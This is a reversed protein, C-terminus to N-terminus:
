LNNSPLEIKGDRVAKLFQLTMRATAGWLKEGDYRNFYVVKLEVQRRLEASPFQRDRLEINRRDSLYSLPISFIRDVESLQPVFDYPHPIVGVVPTVVFNSSTHYTDLEGLLQIDSCELGVEEHAERLAVDIATIDAVDRKGGPFAVQGSHRDRENTVRRIYLVHWDADKYFLPILVSAPTAPRVPRHLKEPIDSPQLLDAMEVIWDLSNGKM